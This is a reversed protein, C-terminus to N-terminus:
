KFTTGDEPPKVILVTRKNRVFIGVVLFFTFINPLRFATTFDKKAMACLM